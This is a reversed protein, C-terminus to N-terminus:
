QKDGRMLTVVLFALIGLATVGIIGLMLGMHIGGTLITGADVGAVPNHIFDAYRNCHRCSSKIGTEM